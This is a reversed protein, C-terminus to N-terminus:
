MKSKSCKKLNNNNNNSINQSVSSHKKRRRWTPLVLLLGMKEGSFLKSLLLGTTLRPDAHQNSQPPTQPRLWFVTIVKGGRQATDSWFVLRELRSSLKSWSSQESDWDRCSWGRCLACLPLLAFTVQFQLLQFSAICSLSM